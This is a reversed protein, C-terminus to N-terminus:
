RLKLWGPLGPMAIIKSDRQKKREFLEVQKKMNAHIKKITDEPNMLFNRGNVRIDILYDKETVFVFRIVERNEGKNGFSIVIGHENPGEDPDIKGKVAYRALERACIANAIDIMKVSKMEGM